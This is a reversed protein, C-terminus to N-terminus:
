LLCKDYLKFAVEGSFVDKTNALEANFLELGASITALFREEELRILEKINEKKENLYTYHSGMIQCLTDVAGDLLLLNLFSAGDIPLILSISM